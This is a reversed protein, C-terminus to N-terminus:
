IDDPKSIFVIHRYCVWLLAKKRGFFAAETTKDFKKAKYFITATVNGNRKGSARKTVEGLDQENDDVNFEKAIPLKTQWKQGYFRIQYRNNEYCTPRKLSLSQTQVLETTDKCTFNNEKAIFGELEKINPM